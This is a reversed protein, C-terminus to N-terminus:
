AHCHPLLSHGPSVQAEEPACGDSYWRDKQGGEGAVCPDVRRTDPRFCPRAGLGLAEESRLAQKRRRLAPPCSVSHFTVEGVGGVGSDGLTSRCVRWEAGRGVAPLSCWATVHCQLGPFARRETLSGWRVGSSMSLVLCGSMVLGVRRSVLSKLPYWLLSMDAWTVVLQNGLACAGEKILSAMVEHRFEEFNWHELSHGKEWGIFQRAAPALGQRVTELREGLGDERHLNLPPDRPRHTPSVSPPM